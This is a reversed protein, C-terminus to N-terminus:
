MWQHSASSLPMLAPFYQQITLLCTLWCERERERKRERETERKREGEGEGEGEGRGRGRGGGGRERGREMLWSIIIFYLAAAHLAFLNM